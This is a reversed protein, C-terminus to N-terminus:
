ERRYQQVLWGRLVSLATDQEKKEIGRLAYRLAGYLGNQQRQVDNWDLLRRCVLENHLDRRFEWLELGAKEILALIDDTLDLRPPDQPIGRDVDQDAQSDLVLTRHMYGQEDKWLVLRM